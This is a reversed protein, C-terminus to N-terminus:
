GDRGRRMPQSTVSGLLKELGQHQLPQLDVRSDAMNAGAGRARAGPPLSHKETIHSCTAAEQPTCWVCLSLLDTNSEEEEEEEGGGRSGWTVVYWIKRMKRREEREAVDSREKREDGSPGNEREVRQVM